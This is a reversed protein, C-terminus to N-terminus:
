RNPDKIAKFTIKVGRHSIEKALKGAKLFTDILNETINKLNRFNPNENFYYNFILENKESISLIIELTDRENIKINYDNLNEDKLELSKGNIEIEELLFSVGNKRITDTLKISSRITDKLESNIQKPTAITDKNVRISDSVDQSFINLIIFSFIVSLFLFKCYIRM